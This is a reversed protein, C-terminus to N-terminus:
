LYKEMRARLAQRAAFLRSMVTGEPIDLTSAIDRYSLNEFHRLYLIERKDPTLRNMERSLAESMEKKEIAVFPGDDVSPLDLQPDTSDDKPSISVFHARSAKRGRNIWLNRLARYYWPFFPQATDFRAIGRFTRVFAEQSLDMAENHDGTLSLAAYYARKMYRKVVAGFADKDGGQCRRILEGDGPEMNLM